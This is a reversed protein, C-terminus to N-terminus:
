RGLLWTSPWPHQIKSAYSGSTLGRNGEQQPGLYPPACLRLRGFHSLPLRLSKQSATGQGKNSVRYTTDLEKRGRPSCCMVSGAGEGLTQEFDHGTIRHHWGVIEDETM